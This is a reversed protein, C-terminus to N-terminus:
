TGSEPRRAGPALDDLKLQLWALDLWRGFKTGVETMTGAREFGLKLHLGISAQNGAEIAGVMVHKGLARARPVLASLLASATGSRRASQRVYVSHEVTHRYGDFTRWDGFSAYGRVQGDDDVAVLVPYGLRQRERMWNRRNEVDVTVDNWIATTNIVADNYIEMIGQADSEIADRIKM